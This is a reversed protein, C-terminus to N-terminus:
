LLASTFQKGFAQNTQPRDLLIHVHKRDRAFVYFMQYSLLVLLDSTGIVTRNRRCGDAVIPIQEQARRTEDLHHSGGQATFM